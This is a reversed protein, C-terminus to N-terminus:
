LICVENCIKKNNSNNRIQVEKVKFGYDLHTGDENVGLMEYWLAAPGHRWKLMRRQLESEASNETPTDSTDNSEDIKPEWPAM